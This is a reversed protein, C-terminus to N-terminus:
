EIAGIHELFEEPEVVTDFAAAPTPMPGGARLAEIHPGLPVDSGYIVVGPLTGGSLAAHMAQQEDTPDSVDIKLLAFRSALVPEVRPDHFTGLEMEKCPGCWTAGFDVLVPKHEAEADAVAAEFEAVTGVETWSMPPVYLVNNVAVEAGFVAVVVAVAKRVKESTPGHFSLHVAGLLLGVAAIVIGAALGWAPDLM